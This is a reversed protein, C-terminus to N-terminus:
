TRNEPLGHPSYNTGHDYRAVAHGHLMEHIHPGGHPHEHEVFRNLDPDWHSHLPAPLNVPIGM